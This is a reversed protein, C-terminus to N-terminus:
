NEASGCGLGARAGSSDEVISRLLGDSNQAHALACLLVDLPRLV